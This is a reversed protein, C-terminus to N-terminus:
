QNKGGMQIVQQALVMYQITGEKEVLKFNRKEGIMTEDLYETRGWQDTQRNRYWYWVTKIAIAKFYVKIDYKSGSEEGWGM